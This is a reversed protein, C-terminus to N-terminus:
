LINDLEEVRTATYVGDENKLTWVKMSVPYRTHIDTSDGVHYTYAIMNTSQLMAICLLISISRKWNETNM